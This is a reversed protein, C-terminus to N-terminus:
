NQLLEKEKMANYLIDMDICYFNEVDQNTSFRFYNYDEQTILTFSYSRIFFIGLSQLSKKLGKQLEHQNASWVNKQLLLVKNRLSKPWKGAFFIGPYVKALESILGDVTRSLRGKEEAQKIQLDMNNKFALVRVDSGNFKEIM